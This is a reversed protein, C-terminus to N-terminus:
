TQKIPITSMWVIFLIHVYFFVFHASLSSDKLERYYAKRFAKTSVLGSIDVQKIKMYPFYTIVYEISKHTWFIQYSCTMQMFKNYKKILYIYSSMWKQCLQGNTKDYAELLAHHINAMSMSKMSRLIKIADTLISRYSILEM